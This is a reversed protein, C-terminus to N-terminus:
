TPKPSHATPTTSSGASTERVAVPLCLAGLVSLEGPGHLVAGADGDPDAGTRAEFPRESTLEDVWLTRADLEDAGDAEWPRELPLRDAMRSLRRMAPAYGGLGVLYRKPVALGHYRVNTDDLRVLHDGHSVATPTPASTRACSSCASRAAARWTGWGFRCGTPMERNWTRGGVRHRAELVVVRAGGAVLQRAAALGAFGAGVM